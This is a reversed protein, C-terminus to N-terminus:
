KRLTRSTLLRLHTLMREPLKLPSDIEKGKRAELFRVQMGQSMAGEEKKLILMTADELREREAKMMM